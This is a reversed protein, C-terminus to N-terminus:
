KQKWSGSADMYYQGAELKAIQKEGTLQAVIQVTTNNDRATQEYVARRRNNIDQVKRVLAPDPSATVVGLYGDIREGIEGAARAADIQPDGASANPAFALAALALLASMLITRIFTM